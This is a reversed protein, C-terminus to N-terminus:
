YVHTGCNTWNNFIKEIHFHPPEKLLFWCSNPSLTGFALFAHLLFAIILLFTKISQAFLQCILPPQGSCESLELKMIVTVFSTEHMHGVLHQVRCNLLVRKELARMNREFHRYSDPELTFPDAANKRSIRRLFRRTDSVIFSNKGRRIQGSCQFPEAHRLTYAVYDRKEGREPLTRFTSPQM